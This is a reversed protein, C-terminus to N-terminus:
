SEAHIRWKGRGWKSVQGKNNMRELQKTAGSTTIGALKGLESSTYTADETMGDIIKKLASTPRAKPERARRVQGSEMDIVEADPMDERFVQVEPTWRKNKLGNIKFGPV